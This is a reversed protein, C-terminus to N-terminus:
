NGVGSVAQRDEQDFYIEELETNMEVFSTRLWNDFLESNKSM